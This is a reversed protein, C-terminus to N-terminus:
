QNRHHTQIDEISQQLYTEFQDPAEWFVVHNVGKIIRATYWPNYKRFADTDTPQEDANIALIPIPLSKLSEQCSNNIWIMCNYLSDRWGTKPVDKIMAIYKASLKDQSTRFFPKVKETTPSSVTDMYSATMSKMFEESYKLDPNQLIDVLVIGKIKQPVQKATEISVPGGMSFGVLIVQDLELHNIVAAVDRGFADMTWIQRNNISKGFGPLDVAVVRYNKSFTEIQGDWVHLNNSWGHILLITQDGNGYVEYHILNGDSDIENSHPNVMARCAGLFLFAVLFLTALRSSFLPNM